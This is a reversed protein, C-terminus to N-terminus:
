LWSFFPVVAGRGKVRGEGFKEVYWKRGWRAHPLMNSVANFFFVVAPLPMPVGMWDVIRAVPVLWPALQFSGDGAGAGAGVKVSPTTVIGAALIAFGLWEIWEAVYHPYLISTFLGTPPPITYIKSYINGGKEKGGAKTANKTTSSSTSPSPKKRHAEERRLRFLTREASINGAMGGLFLTLGLPALLARGISGSTTSGGGGGSAYSSTSTSYPVPYGALWGGLCVANFWNFAVASSAIVVHIPSISPAAFFPSIIARNTYHLTFLFALFKNSTPLTSLSPSLTLDPYLQPLTYLLYLLTIPSVIEMICWAWRGPLNLPSSKLSTKGAPHYSTLWQLLSVLPFYQFINLFHTYIEPTPHILHEWSPLHNLISLASGM